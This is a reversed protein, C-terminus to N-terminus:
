IKNEKIILANLQMLNDRDIINMADIKMPKEKFYRDYLYNIQNLIENITISKNRNFNFCKYIIEFIMKKITSNISTYNIEQQESLLIEKLNNSNKINEEKSQIFSYEQNSMYDIEEFKPTGLIEIIKKIKERKSFAQFIRCSIFVNWM